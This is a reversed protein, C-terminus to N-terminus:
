GAMGLSEAFGWGADTWQQAMRLGAQGLLPGIEERRYKHSSETWITEGRRFAIAGPAGPLHVQQERRSRLHMEVRRAGRDYRIRHQWQGLEFDTGLERNLRVLLNRNFAATVGGPDDYALKLRAVPKVLDLGLLLGDGPRLRRRVAALFEAAGARDFNGLTSGLFLVLLPGPTRRGAIAELGALYEQQVPEMELGGIGALQEQCRALALPSIEIPAYRTFQRRCLAELLWRTKQANGSGLEAVVTGAGFRAVMAEAHSGILGADAAALGYEPLACIAEFLTSGVADYFYKCPLTKQGPRLLGARVEAAMAPLSAGPALPLAPAM